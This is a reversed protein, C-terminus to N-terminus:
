YSINIKSIIANAIANDVYQTTAYSINPDEISENTDVAGITGKYVEEQLATDAKGLSTQVASALDTKPIGLSPKSYTGKTAIQQEISAIISSLDNTDQIGDLFAIVENFTKIATTTDGSVLKDFDNRLTSIASELQTDDYNTLGELKSKLASTFDETSLQKGNVKDVKANLDTKTAYNSLDPVSSGQNSLIADEVTSGNSMYIAKAHGKPWVKEGNKEIDIIKRTAM